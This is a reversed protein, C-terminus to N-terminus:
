YMRGSGRGGGGVMMVMFMMCFSFMAGVLLIMNDDDETSSTGGQTDRSFLDTLANGTPPATYGDGPGLGDNGGGAALLAAREAALRAAAAREAATGAGGANPNIINFTCNQEAGPTRTQFGYPGPVAAPVVAANQVCRYVDPCEHDDELDDPNLTAGQFQGSRACGMHFCEPKMISQANGWEEASSFKSVKGKYWTYYDSPLYCDCM